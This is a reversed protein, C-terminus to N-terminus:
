ECEENRKVATVCVLKGDGSYQVDWEVTDHFLLTDIKGSEPDIFNVFEVLPEEDEDNIRFRELKEGNEDEDDWIFLEMPVTQQFEEPFMEKLIGGAGPVDLLREFDERTLIFEDQDCEPCRCCDDDQEDQVCLPCDCPTEDEDRIDSM